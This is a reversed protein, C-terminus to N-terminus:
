RAFSPLFSSLFHLAPNLDFSKVLAQVVKAGGPLGDCRPLFDGRSLSGVKRAQLGSSLNERGLSELQEAYDALASRVGDILKGLKDAAVELVDM